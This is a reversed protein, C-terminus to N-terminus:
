PDAQQPRVSWQPEEFEGIVTIECNKSHMELIARGRDGPRMGATTRPM